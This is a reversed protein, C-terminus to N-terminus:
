YRYPITPAPQYWKDCPVRFEVIEEKAGLMEVQCVNPGVEVLGVISSVILPTLAIPM